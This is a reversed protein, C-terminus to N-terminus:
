RFALSSHPVPIGVRRQCQRCCVAAQRIVVSAPVIGVIATGTADLCSQIHSACVLTFTDTPKWKRKTVEAAPSPSVSEGMMIEEVKTGRLCVPCTWLLALCGRGVFTYGTCCVRGRRLISWVSVDSITRISTRCELESGDVCCVAGPRSGLVSLARAGTQDVLLCVPSRYGSREYEDWRGAAAAAWAKLRAAFPWKSCVLAPSPDQPCCM